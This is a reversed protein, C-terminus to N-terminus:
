QRLRVIYIGMAVFGIIGIFLPMLNTLSTVMGMNGVTNYTNPAIFVTTLTTPESGTTTITRLGSYIWSKGDESLTAPVTYTLTDSYASITGSSVTFPGLTETKVGDTYTAVLKPLTGAAQSVIYVDDGVSANITTNNGYSSYNGKPSPYLINEYTLTYQNSDSTYKLVGNKMVIETGITSYSTHINNVLDFIAVSGQYITVMGTDMIILKYGTSVDFNNVYTGSSRIEVTVTSNNDNADRLMYSGLPNDNKDVINDNMESVYPIMLGAVVVIVLIAGIAPKLVDNM